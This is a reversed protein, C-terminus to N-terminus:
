QPGPTASPAPPPDALTPEPTAPAAPATAAPAAPAAQSATKEIDYDLIVTRLMVEKQEWVEIVLRIKNEGNQRIRMDIDKSGAKVTYKLDNSQKDELYNTAFLDPISAPVSSREARAARIENKVEVKMDGKSTMTTTARTTINVLEKFSSREGRFQGGEKKVEFSVPIELARGAADPDNAAAGLGETPANEDAMINGSRDRTIAQQRFARMWGGSNPMFKVSATFQTLKYNGEPLASKEMLRGNTLQSVMGDLRQEVENKKKLEEAKRQRDAETENAPAAPQGPKGPTAPASPKQGAPAATGANPNKRVPQRRKAKGDGCAVAVTLMIASLAFLRTKSTLGM